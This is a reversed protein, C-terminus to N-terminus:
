NVQLISFTEQSLDGGLALGLYANLVYVNGDNALTATTPFKEGVVAFTSVLTATGWDDNTTLIQVGPNEGLGNEVLAVTGDSILELGDGGIFAPADIKNYSTPDAIPIKFLAGDDLKNVILNGNTYVIGNLGFNMPAPTFDMGGDIFISAELTTGDVKYVVPSFSDTVYINGENDVAIDNAFAAAGDPLLEHLNIGQVLDGTELNYIGLYAVVAPNSNSNTSFGLNGSVVLLRNRSEDTFVGTVSALKPDTVFTTYAGTQPDVYGVESKAISGVVFQNNNTNFDIGEPYLGTETITITQPIPPPLTPTSTDDDNGCSIFVISCLLIFIINKTKFTKM